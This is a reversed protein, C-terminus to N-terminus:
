LLPMLESLSQVVLDPIGTEPFQGGNDKREAHWKEKCLTQCAEHRNREDPAIANLEEPLSRRIWVSTIGLENAPCVDHDIRDGIHATIGGDLGAAEFMAINPKAYGVQDPTIVKDFVDFIHLAELVPQQYKLFGNTMVALSFGKQKLKLLNERVNNELLYVKPHVAHKQVLKEVEIELPLNLDLLLQKVIKNWDYAAVVQNNEMLRESEAVLKEKVAVDRGADRIMAEIEPFVWEMFPNQMLTGDLDFTIWQQKM